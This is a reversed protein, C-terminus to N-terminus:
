VVAPGGTRMNEEYRYLLTLHENVPLLRSIQKHNVARNMDYRSLIEPGYESSGKQKLSAM